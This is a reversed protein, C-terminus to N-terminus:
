AAAPMVFSVAIGDEGSYEACLVPGAQRAAQAVSVALQGVGSAKGLDGIRPVINTAANVEVPNLDIGFYYLASGLSALRKGAVEVGGANHVIWGCRSPIADAEEEKPADAQAGGFVFPIDILGANVQARELASQVLRTLELVGARQQTAQRFAARHVRGLVPLQALEDRRAAGVSVLLALSGEPQLSKEWFPTMSDQEGNGDIGAIASLMSPLAANTLLMAVAGENPKGIQQEKKIQEPSPEDDLTDISAARSLPSDFALVIAGPLDPTTEFLSIVSNPTCDGAPLFLISPFGANPKIGRDLADALEAHITRIRALVEEGSVESPPSVFVPFVISAPCASYMKSLADTIAPALQDLITQGTRDQKNDAVNWVIDVHPLEAVPLPLASHNALGAIAIARCDCAFRRQRMEEEHKERAAERAADREAQARAEREQAEDAKKRQSRRRLGFWLLWVGLPPVAHAAIVGLNSWNAFNAQILLWLAAVWAIAALLFVLFNTIM